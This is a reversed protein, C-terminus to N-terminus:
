HRKAIYRMEITIHTLPRDIVFACEEFDPMSLRHPPNNSLGFGERPIGMFMKMEQDFDLDDLVSIAYTGYALGEIRTVLTGGEMGEKSWLYEVDPENPWGEPSSNLGAAIQGERTHIGTFEIELTGTPTSQAWLPIGALFLLIFTYPLRRRM